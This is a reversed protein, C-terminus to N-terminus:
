KAIGVEKLFESVANENRASLGNIVSADPCASTIQEPTSGLGLGQSTVIPIIKKESFDYEELFTLVAQPLRGMWNPYILVVTNYGEMREVQTILEPRANEFFESRHRNMTDGYTEPYKESVGIFFLDGGTAEHASLALIEAHGLVQDDQVKLSASSVADVADSSYERNGALSFYAVLVDSDGTMSVMGTSIKETSVSNAFPSPFFSIWFYSAAIVIIAMAAGIVLAISKKLKIYLAIQKAHQIVHCIIAVLGLRSFFVHLGHHGGFLAILSKIEFIYGIMALIGSIFTLTWTVILFQNVRYRQKVSKELKDTKYAKKVSSMWKRNIYLHVAFLLFCISGAIYHFVEKGVWGSLSLILFLLMFVDVIIRSTKSQLKIM